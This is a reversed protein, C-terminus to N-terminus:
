TIALPSPPPPSAVRARWLKRRWRGGDPVAQALGALSRRRQKGVPQKVSKHRGGGLLVAHSFCAFLAASTFLRWRKMVPSLRGWPPRTPSFCGGGGGLMCGVRAGAGGGLLAAHLNIQQRGGYDARSGRKRSGCRGAAGMWINAM